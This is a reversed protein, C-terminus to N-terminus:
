PTSTCQEEENRIDALVAEVAQGVATEVQATLGEGATFAAGEIGYVLVRRPLTGLARSLEITEAVGFAHTSSRFVHAPIPTDSADFRHVTGPTGGSSVADVVVAADAGEWTDILRTPEDACAALDVGDPLRGRLREAVALGAGDDGRYANGVGVVVRRMSM